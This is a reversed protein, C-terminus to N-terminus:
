MFITEREEQEVVVMGHDLMSDRIEDSWSRTDVREDRLEAEKIYPRLKSTLAPPFLKWRKRGIL